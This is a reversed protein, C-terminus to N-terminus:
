GLPEEWCLTRRFDRVLPCVWLHKVPVPTRGAQPHPGKKGRGRTQGLCTWQAARYCAGSYPAQVFTELLVPRWGYRQGFDNPLQRACRALVHSALHPVHVWPLILFRANNLVWPLRRQRQAPTWGVFQDRLSLSWAAAGFGIAGLLNDRGYILYRLQAGPLNSQGLYHYAAMLSNWLRSQEPDRVVQLELPQLRSLPGQLPQVPPLLDRPPHWPKGNGNGNRPPPLEVLGAAALRLLAVRASMLAHQAGPTRWGLRKCLRRAIETRLWPRALRIEERVARLAAPGFARGLLRTPAAKQRQEQLV